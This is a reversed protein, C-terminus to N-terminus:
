AVVRLKRNRNVKENRKECWALVREYDFRVSRNLRICPLGENLLDSISRQSIGLLEALRKRDVLGIPKDANRTESIQSSSSGAELTRIAVSVQCFADDIFRKGLAALNGTIRILKESQEATM